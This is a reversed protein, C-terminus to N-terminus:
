FCAQTFRRGGYYQLNRLHPRNRTSGITSAPTSSSLSSTHTFCGTIHQHANQIDLVSSTSQRVLHRHQLTYSHRQGGISRPRALPAPHGNTRSRLHNPPRKSKLLHRSQKSGRYAMGLVLRNTFNPKNRRVMSRRRGMKICRRFRSVFSQAVSIRQRTYPTTRVTSHTCDLGQPLTSHRRDVNCSTQQTTRRHRHGPRSSRSTTQWMPNSDIHIPTQRSSKPLRTNTSTQIKRATYAQSRNTYNQRQKRATRYNTRHWRVVM